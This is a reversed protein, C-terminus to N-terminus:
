KDAMKLVIHQLTYFSASLLKTNHGFGTNIFCYIHVNAHLQLNYMKMDPLLFM